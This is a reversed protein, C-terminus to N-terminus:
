LGPNDIKMDLGQRLAEILNGGRGRTLELIKTFRDPIATEASWALYMPSLPLDSVTRFRLDPRSYFRSILAPVLSIGLGMAIAELEETFSDARAGIKVPEERFDNLLWFDEWHPDSNRAVVFAENLIDEVTITAQLCLPHKSSLAVVTPEEFLLAYAVTPSEPKMRLLSIDVDGREISRFPTAWNTQLLELQVDPFVQFVASLLIPMLEGAGGPPLEVRLGTPGSGFELATSRMTSDLQAVLPAVRRLLTDGAPTLAVSRTNRSFLSAGIQDELQRINSSVAQQTMFLQTAARSFNLENALAIFISLQRLTPSM